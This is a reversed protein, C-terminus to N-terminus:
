WWQPCSQQCEKMAADRDAELAQMCCLCRLSIDLTSMLSGGAVQNWEIGNWRPRCFINMKWLGDSSWLHQLLLSPRASWAADMCICILFNVRKHVVAAIEGQNAESAKPAAEAAGVMRPNPIIETEQKSHSYRRISIACSSTSYQFTRTPNSPEVKSRVVRACVQIIILFCYFFLYVISISSFTWVFKNADPEMILWFFCPWLFKCLKKWGAGMNGMNRFFVHFFMSRKSLQRDGPLRQWPLKASPTLRWSRIDPHVTLPVVWLHICENLREKTLEIKQENLLEIMWKKKANKQMNQIGSNRWQHTWWYM